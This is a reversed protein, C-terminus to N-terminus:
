VPLTTGSGRRAEEKEERLQGGGRAANGAKQAHGLARGPALRRDSAAGIRGPACAQRVQNPLSTENVPRANRRITCTLIQERAWQDLQRFGGAPQYYSEM